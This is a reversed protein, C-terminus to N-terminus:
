LDTRAEAVHRAGGGFPSDDVSQRPDQTVSRLDHVRVDLADARQARGLISADTYGNILEPFITIVDIRM